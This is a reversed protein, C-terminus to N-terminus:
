DFEFKIQFDNSFKSQFLQFPFLFLFNGKEESEARCGMEEGHGAHKEKGRPGNSGRARRKGAQASKPRQGLLRAFLQWAKRRLQTASLM